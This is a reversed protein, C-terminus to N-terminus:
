ISPIESMEESPFQAQMESTSFSCSKFV